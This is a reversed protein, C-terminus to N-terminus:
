RVADTNTATQGRSAPANTLGAGVGSGPAPVTGYEGGGKGSGDYGPGAGGAGAKSGGDESPQQGCGATLLAVAFVSLLWTTKM